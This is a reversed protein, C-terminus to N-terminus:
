GHQAGKLRYESQARRVTMAPDGSARCMADRAANETLGMFVPGQANDTVRPRGDELWRRLAACATEPLCLAEQHRGHRVVVRARHLDLDHTDLRSIDGLRVGPVALFALLARDRHARWEPPRCSAHPNAPGHALPYTRVHYGEWPNAPVLKRALLYHYLARVARAYKHRHDAVRHLGDWQQVLAAVDAGNAELLGRGRQAVFILWSGVARRERAVARPAAGRARWALYRRLLTHDDPPEQAPAPTMGAWPNPKLRPM